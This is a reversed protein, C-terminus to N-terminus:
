SVRRFVRLAKTKSPIKVGIANGFISGAIDVNDFPGVFIVDNFISNCMRKGYVTQPDIRANISGTFNTNEILTDNFSNIFKVGNLISGELSKHRLKQPDIIIESCVDTFDTKRILAGDFSGVVISDALKTNYLNRDYITDVNIVANVSGTFDAECIICGDFSGEFAVGYLITGLLDKNKALQPNLVVDYAGTFNTRRINVGNFSGNLTVSNLICFSLDKDRIKQIDMYANTGTFDCGRVLVDDFPRNFRVGNLKANSLDRDYIIQPNIRVNHLNSFDMGVVNVDDFSVNSFDIKELIYQPLAFVKGEKTRDFLIQSVYSDDLKILGNFNKLKRILQRRLKNIKYM